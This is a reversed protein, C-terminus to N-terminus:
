FYTTARMEAKLERTLLSIGESKEFNIETHSRKGHSLMRRSCRHAMDYTNCLIITDDAYRAFVAGEREIELDLELCAVNALFLSISSGTRFVGSM